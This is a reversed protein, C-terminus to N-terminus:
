EIRFEGYAFMQNRTKEFDPKLYFKVLRYVGAKYRIQDKLLSTTFSKSENPYIAFGIDQFAQDPSVKVWRKNELHEIEFHMGTTITDNTNNIMVIRLTDPLSSLHFADPECKLSVTTTITDASM